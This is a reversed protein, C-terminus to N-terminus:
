SVQLTFGLWSFRLEGISSIWVGTTIIVVAVIQVFSYKEMGFAYYLLLLPVPNISKIMQIYAVSLYQYALNGM